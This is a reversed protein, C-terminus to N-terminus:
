YNRVSDRYLINSNYGYLDRRGHFGEKLKCNCSKTLLILLLVIIVIHYLDM